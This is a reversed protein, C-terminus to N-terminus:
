GSTGTLTKKETETEPEKAEQSDEASAKSRPVILIRQCGLCLLHEGSPSRTTRSSGCFPCKPTKM